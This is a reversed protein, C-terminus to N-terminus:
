DDKDFYHDEITSVIREDGGFDEEDILEEMAEAIDFSIESDHLRSMFRGVIRDEIDVSRMEEEGEGM